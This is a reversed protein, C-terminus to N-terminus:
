PSKKTTPKLSRSAKAALASIFTRVYWSIPHTGNSFREEAAAVATNAVLTDAMEPHIVSALRKETGAVSPNHRATFVNQRYWCEIDSDNWIMWRAQDDCVFGHQNFLNQWYSPWQCHIHSQGPQGPCAASFIVVSSHATLCAMLTEASSPQLHEAVEMCLAIDFTRGLNWDSNLDMQQYCDSPIHLHEPDIQAGDIGFTDLVGLDSAAKLWTGTGCGVDLLSRPRPEPLLCELARRPGTLGHIAPTHLYPPPSSPPM